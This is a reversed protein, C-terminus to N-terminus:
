EPLPEGRRAACFADLAARDLDAANGALADASRDVAAAEPWLGALRLRRAVARVSVLADQLARASDACPVVQNAKIM